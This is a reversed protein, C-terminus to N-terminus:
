FDFQAKVTLGHIVLNGINQYSTNPSVGSEHIVNIHMNDRYHRMMNQNFYTIFEYGAKLMFNYANECFSKTYGLGLLCEISPNLTSFKNKLLVRNSYVSSATGSEIGKSDFNQYFLSTSFNGSIFFCESVMWKSYVAFKPGILWSDSKWNSKEYDNDDLLNYYVYMKQDMRGGKLGCNLDLLLKKGIYVPHTLDIKAMDMCLSWTGTCNYARDNANIVGAWFPIIFEESTARSLSKTHSNHFWTYEANLEWNDYPMAYGAGIKFGSKYSEDLYIMHGYKSELSKALIGLESGGEKPLWFIYSANINFGNEGRHYINEPIAKKDKHMDKKHSYNDMAFLSSIIFSSLLLFCKFKM